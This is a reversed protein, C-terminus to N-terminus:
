RARAQAAAPCVQAHRRRALCLFDGQQAREVVGGALEDHVGAWGLAAAVEDGVELLDVPPITGFRALGIRRHDQNLVVARDVGALEGQHREGAGGMPEGDLPQGFVCGFQVVDFADPSVELRVVEGVRGEGVGSVEVLGDVVGDVGEVVFSHAM